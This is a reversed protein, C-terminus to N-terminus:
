SGNAHQASADSSDNLRTSMLAYHDTLDSLDLIYDGITVEITEADALLTRLESPALIANEETTTNPTRDADVTHIDTTEYTSDDIQFTVQEARALSWDSAETRILISWSGAVYSLAVAAQEVAPTSNEILDVPTYSTQVHRNETRENIEDNEISQATSM